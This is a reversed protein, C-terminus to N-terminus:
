GGCGGCGGCGGGCSSGCSSGGSSGCGGGDGSGDSKSKAGGAAAKDVVAREAGPLVGIGYTALVLGPVYAEGGSGTISERAGHLLERLDALARNGAATRRRFSLLAAVATFAFTLFILFGVGYRPDRNALQMGTVTFLVTAAAFLRLGRGLHQGASPLLGREILTEELKELAQRAPYSQMAGGMTGPTGVCYMLLAEELPVHLRPDGADKTASLWVGDATILGRDLLAVLAVRVAETEGGRLYAVLYPDTLSTNSPAAVTEYLRQFVVLATVVVVGVAAYFALFAPGHLDLPNLPNTM